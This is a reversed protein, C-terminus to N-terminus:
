PWRDIFLLWKLTLILHTPGGFCNRLFILQLAFKQVSHASERLEKRNEAVSNV